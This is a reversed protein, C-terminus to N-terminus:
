KTKKPRGTKVAPVNGIAIKLLADDLLSLAKIGARLLESKKMQQGLMGTRKKLVEIIQYEDKPMTFSDRVLKPKKAKQEKAAVPAKVVKAAQPKSPKSKSTLKPKASKPKAVAAPKKVAKPAAAKPAAVKKAEPKATDTTAMSDEM